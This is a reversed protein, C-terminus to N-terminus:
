QRRGVSEWAQEMLQLAQLLDERVTDLGMAANRPQANLFDYTGQWALRAAAYGREVLRGTESRPDRQREGELHRVVLGLHDVARQAAATSISREAQGMATTIEEYASRLHDLSVTLNRTDTQM